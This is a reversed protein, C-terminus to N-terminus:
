AETAGLVEPGPILDHGQRTRWWMWVLLTAALAVAVALIRPFRVVAGWDTPYLTADVFWKEHARVADPWVVAVGLGAAVGRVFTSRTV